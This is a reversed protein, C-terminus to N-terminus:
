SAFPDGYQEKRQIPGVNEWVSVEEWTAAM